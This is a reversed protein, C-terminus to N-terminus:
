RRRKTYLLGKGIKLLKKLTKFTKKCFLIVNREILDFSNYINVSIVQLSRSIGLFLSRLVKQFLRSISLRCVAFGIALGFFVFGRLEGNTTALMFVFTALATLLSFFVDQVFVAVAGYRVTARLAKLFDYIVCFIVGLAVARLFNLLQLSSNIEWM